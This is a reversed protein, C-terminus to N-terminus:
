VHARGIKLCLTLDITLDMALNITLDITLDIHTGRHGANDRPAGHHRTTLDLTLDVTRDICVNAELLADHAARKRCLTTWLM